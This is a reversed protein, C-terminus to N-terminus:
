TGPRFRVTIKTRSLQPKSGFEGLFEFYYFGPDLPVTWDYHYVGLSDREGSGTEISTGESNYVTWSTEQSDPDALAGTAPPIAYDRFTAKVRITDGSFVTQIETSNCACTM